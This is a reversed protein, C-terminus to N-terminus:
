QVNPESTSIKADKISSAMWNLKLDEAAPKNLYIWFGKQDVKNILFIYNAEFLRVQDASNDSDVSWNAVVVPTQAYPSGFKIQVKQAGAKIVATGGGDSNFTPQKSFNVNGNFNANGNFEALLQFITKGNFQADKDVVLGGKSEIQALAVLNVAQLNNFSVQSATELGSASSSQTSTDANSTGDAAKGQALMDQLSNIKDTLVELGEIQNAKIKDAYLTGKVYVDKNFTM